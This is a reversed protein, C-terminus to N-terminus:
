PVSLASIHCQSHETCSADNLLRDVVQGAVREAVSQTPSLLGPQYEHTWILRKTKPDLLRVKGIGLEHDDLDGEMGYYVEMGHYWREVGVLGTLVADAQLPDQVVLFRGSTAIGNSIYDRVSKTEEVLNAGEEHGLDEIYISHIGSLAQTDLLTTAPVNHVRQCAVLMCCLAVSAITRM